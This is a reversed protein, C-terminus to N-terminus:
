APVAAGDGIAERDLLVISNGGAAVRAVPLAEGAAWRRLADRKGAGTILAVKGKLEPYMM